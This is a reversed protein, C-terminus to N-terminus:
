LGDWEMSVATSLVGKEVVYCHSGSEDKESRYIKIFFIVWSATVHLSPVQSRDM